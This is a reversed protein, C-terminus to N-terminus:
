EKMIEDYACVCIFMNLISMRESIILKFIDSCICRFLFIQVFNIYWYWVLKRFHMSSYIEAVLVYIRCMNYWFWLLTGTEQCALPVM